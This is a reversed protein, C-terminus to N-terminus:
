GSHNMFLLDYITGEYYSTRVTKDPMDDIVFDAKDPAEHAASRGSPTPATMGESEKTNSNGM